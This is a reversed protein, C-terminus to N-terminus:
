NSEDSLDDEVEEEQADEVEEEEIFEEQEEEEILNIKEKQTQNEVLKIEEKIQEEQDQILELPIAIDESDGIAQQVAEPIQVIYGEPNERQAKILEETANMETRDIVKFDNLYEFTDQIADQQLLNQSLECGGDEIMCDKSCYTGKWGGGVLPMRVAYCRKGIVNKCYDCEGAFWTPVNPYYPATDDNDPYVMSNFCNCYFMRCGGYKFCVHDELQYQTNTLPNCPGLIASLEGNTAQDMITNEKWIPDLLELNELVSQKGLLIYLKYVADQNSFELDATNLGATLYQTLTEKLEILKDIFVLRELLDNKIAKAFQDKLKPNYPIEVGIIKSINKITEEVSSKPALYSKPNVNSLLSYIEEQNLEIGAVEYINKIYQYLKPIDGNLYDLIDPTDIVKEIQKITPVLDNLEFLNQRQQFYKQINEPSLSEITPFLYGVLEDLPYDILALKLEETDPELGFVKYQEGLYNILSEYFTSLLGEPGEKKSEMIIEQNITDAKELLFQETPLGSKTEIKTIYTPIPTYIPYDDFFDRLVNVAQNNEANIAYQVLWYYEKKNPRGYIKFVKNIGLMCADGEYEDIIQMVIEASTTVPYTANFIIQYTREPINQSIFAVPIFPYIEGEYEDLGSITESFRRLIMKVAEMNNNEACWDLMMVFLKDSDSIPMRELPMLYLQEKLEDNLGSFISAKIAQLLKDSMSISGIEIQKKDYPELPQSPIVYKKSPYTTRRPIEKALFKGESGTTIKKSVVPAPKQRSAKAAPENPIKGLTLSKIQEDIMQYFNDLETENIEIDQREKRIMDDIFKKREMEDKEEQFFLNVDMIAESSLINELNSPIGSTLNSVIKEKTLNARSIKDNLIKSMDRMEKKSISSKSM